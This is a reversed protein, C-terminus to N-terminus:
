LLGARAARLNAERLDDRRGQDDALERYAELKDDRVQEACWARFGYIAWARLREAEGASADVLQARAAAQVAEDLEPTVTTSIRRASAPM